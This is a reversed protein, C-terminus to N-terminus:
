LFNKTNGRRLLQAKSLKYWSSLLCGFCAVVILKNEMTIQIKKLNGSCIRIYKKM